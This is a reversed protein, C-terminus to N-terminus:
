MDPGKFKDLNFYAEMRTKLVKSEDLLTYSWRSMQNAAILRDYMSRFFVMLPSSEKMAEYDSTLAIFAYFIVSGKNMRKKKGDIDVYVDTVDTFTLKVFM